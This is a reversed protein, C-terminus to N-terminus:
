EQGEDVLYDLQPVSKSVALVGELQSQLVRQFCANNAVNATTQLLFKDEFDEKELRLKLLVQLREERSIVVQQNLFFSHAVDEVM